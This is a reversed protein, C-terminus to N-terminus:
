RIGGYQRQNELQAIDGRASALVHFRDGQMTGQDLFDLYRKDNHSAAKLLEDTWAKAGAPPEKARYELFLSYKLAARLHEWKGLYGHLTKLAAYEDDNEAMLQVIIESYDPVFVTPLSSM